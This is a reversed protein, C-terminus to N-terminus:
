GDVEGHMDAATADGEGPEKGDFLGPMAALVDVRDEPPVLKLHRIFAAPDGEGNKLNSDDGNHLASDLQMLVRAIDIAPMIEFVDKLQSGSM